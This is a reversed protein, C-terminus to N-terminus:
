FKVKLGVTITSLPSYRYMDSAGSEATSPNFGNRASHLWLNDGSVFFSAQDIIGIRRVVNAPLTYGLRVNNLALYNAETVFRSSTSAVSADANNSLRPVNTIDGAKQWRNRIDTSWNNGGILGNAMLSAYAGDYSYGGFSYLLQVDL